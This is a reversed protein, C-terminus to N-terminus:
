SLVFFHKGIKNQSTKELISSYSLIGGEKQTSHSIQIKSHHMKIKEQANHTSETYKLCLHSKGISGLLHQRHQKTSKCWPDSLINLHEYPKSYWVYGCHQLMCLFLLIHKQKLLPCSGKDIDAWATWAMTHHFPELYYWSSACMRAWQYPKHWYVCQNLIQMHYQVLWASRSRCRKRLESIDNKM